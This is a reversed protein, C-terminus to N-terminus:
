EFEKRGAAGGCAFYGQCAPKECRPIAGLYERTLLGHFLQTRADIVRSASDSCSTSVSFGSGAKHFSNSKSLLSGISTIRPSFELM